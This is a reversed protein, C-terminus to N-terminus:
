RRPQQNQNAQQQKNVVAPTVQAALAHEAHDKKYKELNERCQKADNLQLDLTHRTNAVREDALKVLEELQEAGPDYKGGYVRILEDTYQEPIEFAGTEDSIYKHGELSIESHGGNLRIRKNM